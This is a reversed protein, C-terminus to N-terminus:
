GGIFINPDGFDAIKELAEEVQAEFYSRDIDAEKNLEKVVAAPLRMSRIM